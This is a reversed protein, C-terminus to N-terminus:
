FLGELQKYLKNFKTYRNNLTEYLKKNPYYEKEIQPKVCVTTEEEGCAIAALRSAGIAGYAQGSPHTIIKVDLVNAILQAWLESRSGGGVLSLQKVDAGAEILANLGDKLGFAIGEIVSYGMVAQNSSNTMGFFTGKANANNHPTREGSLYPLFIPANELDKKTLQQIDALLKIETTNTLKCYWSLCSAASLM